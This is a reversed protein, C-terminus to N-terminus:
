TNFNSQRPLCVHANIKFEFHQVTVVVPCSNYDILHNLLCGIIVGSGWSVVIMKTFTRRHPHERLYLLSEIEKKEDDKPPNKQKEVEGIPMNGLYRIAETNLMIKEVIALM